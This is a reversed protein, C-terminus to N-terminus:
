TKGEKEHLKQGKPIRETKRKMKKRKMIMKKMKVKVNNRKKGRMREIKIMMM